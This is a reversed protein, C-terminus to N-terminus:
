ANSLRLTRNQHTYFDGVTIEPVDLEPAIMSTAIIMQNPSKSSSSKNYLLRQFNKSRDPEMGKDEVTDMLLFRPHSFSAQNAAAVAFSAIFSNRLYAMSSASFFSEGNVSIRDGDFDFDVTDANKFTSQRELDNRLFELVELEIYRRAKSIQDRDRRETTEIISRADDIKRQLADRQRQAEKLEAVASKRAALEELKRQAYGVERNLSRLRTRLETTPSRLSVTYHRGAQEWLETVKTLQTKLDSIRRQRDAQLDISSQRQRAYENILRLAREKVHSQDSAQKCLSCAGEVESGHIPAFCAPCFEFQLSNLEDVVMKSEHLADLKKTLSAIFEVSDSAELELFDLEEKIKGIDAQLSKVRAYTAEQDNLSLRDEFQASFVQEETKEIQGNLDDLEKQLTRYEENLWDETLPHGERGHIRILTKIRASVDKMEAEYAKLNLKAAYYEESFAGLLLHGVTQRTIADDFPQSRFIKEVSSLQDSYLLRLVQNITIKTNAEGYQVEPLGLLRFMVQSFSESKGRRFSYREWGSAGSKLAEDSPGFFIRMPQSSKQEVDRQLTVDKGNLKVGMTVTDCLLASERWQHDLLDGGLGFFIFDMITSKGSSNEGRIINLGSHFTESFVTNGRRFISLDVVELNPSYLTM